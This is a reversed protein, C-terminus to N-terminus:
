PYAHTFFYSQCKFFPWKLKTTFSKKIWLFYSISITNPIWFVGNNYLLICIWNIEMDNMSLKVNITNFNENEWVSM